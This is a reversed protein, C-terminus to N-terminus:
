PIEHGKGISVSLPRPGRQSETRHPITSRQRVFQSIRLTEFCPDLYIFSNTHPTGLCHQSPADENIQKLM